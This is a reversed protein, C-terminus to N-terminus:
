TPLHPAPPQRQFDLTKPGRSIARASLRTGNPALFSSSELALGGGGVEGCLTDARMLVIVRLATYIM